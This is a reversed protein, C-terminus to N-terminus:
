SRRSSEAHPHRIFNQYRRLDDLSSESILDFPIIRCGKPIRLATTSDCIVAATQQLGRRL